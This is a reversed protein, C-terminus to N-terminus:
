QAVITYDVSEVGNIRMGAMNQMVQFYYNGSHTLDIETIDIDFTKKRLVLTESESIVIQKDLMVIGVSPSIVKMKFFLKDFEYNENLAFSLRFVQPISDTIKIRFLPTQDSRWVNGAFSNKPGDSSPKFEPNRALRLSGDINEIKDTESNNLHIIATLREGEDLFFQKIVGNYNEDILINDNLTDTGIIYTARLFINGKFVKVTNLFLSVDVYCKFDAYYVTTVANTRSLKTFDVAYLSQCGFLLLLTFIIISRM